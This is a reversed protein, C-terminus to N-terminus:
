HYYYEGSRYSGLIKYWNTHKEIAKLAKKAQPSNLSESFDLYFNYSWKKGIVPRSEIKSLNVDAEHFSMLVSALSGPTNAASFVISTKDADEPIVPTKSIIFFRTYNEKDTEISKELIQMDFIEAAYSSAIAATNQLNQTKVEKVSGATDTKNIAKMHPHKKLFEQCQKMAMPHSWVEKIDQINVHPHAILNHSIRLYVEGVIHLHHSLLFDYNEMLSGAISNEIAVVGFDVSGDTVDDFVELFSEREKLETINTFIKQSVLDHFSGKNGQISISLPSHTIQM